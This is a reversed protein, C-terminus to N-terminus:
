SLHLIICLVRLWDSINLTDFVSLFVMIIEATFCNIYKSILKKMFLYLFLVYKRVMDVYKVVKLSERM